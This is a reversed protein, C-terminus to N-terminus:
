DYITINERVYKGNEIEMLRKYCSWWWEMQEERTREYFDTPLKLEPHKDYVANKQRVYSTLHEGIM